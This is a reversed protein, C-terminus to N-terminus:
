VMRVDFVMDIALNIVISAQKSDIRKDKIIIVVHDKEKEPDEVPEVVM